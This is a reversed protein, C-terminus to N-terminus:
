DGIMSLINRSGMKCERTDRVGINSWNSKERKSPIKTRM